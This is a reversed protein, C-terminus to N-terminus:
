VAQENQKKESQRQRAKAFTKRIDTAAAPVYRWKRNLLGGGRATTPAKM